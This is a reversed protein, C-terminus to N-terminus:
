FLFSTQFLLFLSLFFHLLLPPATIHNAKAIIRCLLLRATYALINQTNTSNELGAEFCRMLTYYTILKKNTFAFCVLPDHPVSPIFM